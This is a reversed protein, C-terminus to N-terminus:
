DKFIKVCWHKIPTNTEVYKDDLVDKDKYKSMSIPHYCWKVIRSYALYSDSVWGSESAIIKCWELSLDILSLLLQRVFKDYQVKLKTDKLWLSLLHKSAKTIGLFLLHIM